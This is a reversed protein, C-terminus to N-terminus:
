RENARTGRVVAEIRGPMEDLSVVENALGAQVIHRPMGYVVSSQEDQAICYGGRERVARVGDLGDCGMGTMVVALCRQEFSEALTRFLVNAAPRCGNEQPGDSIEIRAPESRRRAAIGMHRGGPALLIQGPEVRDGDAAERVPLRCCESLTQALSETFGAAMHQVILIPCSLDGPVRSLVELLAKPGGTSVGIAVLGIPGVGAALPTEASDRIVNPRRISAPDRPARAASAATVTRTVRRLLADRSDGGEPKQIVEIAGLALAKMTAGAGAVASVMAVSVDPYEKTLVELTALGDLEPMEVDLLILDPELEPVRDLAERGNSAQGVLEAEACGAVADAVLRRYIASDDVILVRLRGARTRV